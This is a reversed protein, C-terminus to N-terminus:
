DYPLRVDVDLLPGDRIETDVYAGASRPCEDHVLSSPDDSGSRFLVLREKTRLRAPGLLIRAVPPAGTSEGDALRKVGGIQTGIVNGANSERTLHVACDQEVGLI